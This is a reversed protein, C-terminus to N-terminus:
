IRCKQLHIETILLVVLRWKGSKYLVLKEQMKGVFSGKLTVHGSRVNYKVQISPLNTCLTENVFDARQCIKLQETTEAPRPGRSLISDKPLVM